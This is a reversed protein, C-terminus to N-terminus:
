LANNKEWLANLSAIEDPTKTEIGQDKCDSVVMDILRAMSKSSFCSSGYYAIVNTYGPLKSDGITECIWGLGKKQWNSIFKEVAENKIPLIENEGPIDKIYNRYIEEKTVPREGSITLKDALQDVLQWFYANSDLSRKKKKQSIKCVVEKNNSFLANIEDLQMLVRKNKHLDLSLEISGDMKMKAEISFIDFEM